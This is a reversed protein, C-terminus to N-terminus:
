NKVRWVLPAGTSIDPDYGDINTYLHHGFVHQNIWVYTSVGNLLEHALALLKWFAPSHTIAYHSSFSRSTERCIVKSLLIFIFDFRYFIFLIVSAAFVISLRVGWWWFKMFKNWVTIKLKMKIIIIMKRLIIMMMVGRITIIIMIIKIIVILLIILIRIVQCWSTDHTRQICRFNRFSRM